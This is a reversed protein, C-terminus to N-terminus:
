IRGDHEMPLSPLKDGASAPSPPTPGFGFRLRIPWIHLSLHTARIARPWPTPLIVLPDLRHLMPAICLIVPRSSNTVPAEPTPLVDVKLNNSCCLGSM